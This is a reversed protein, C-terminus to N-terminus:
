RKRRSFLRDIILGIVLSIFSVLITPAVISTPETSDHMMRLSIITTPVLTVGCTNIVLFTIMSRTAEDKKKSLKQLSEMAKLGFPTAANGLGFMNAIINSSILGLSEHGSPIEPFIKSLIPSLFNSAKQLLGSDRAINMIGLWMSLLPFIQLILDLTTKGSALIQNNLVDAKGNLILFFSGSIIFFIWLKNIM